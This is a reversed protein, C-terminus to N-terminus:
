HEDRGPDHDEAFRRRPRDTPRAHPEGHHEQGAAPDRDTARGRLTLSAGDSGTTKSGAGAPKGGATTSTVASM